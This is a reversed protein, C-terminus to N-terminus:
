VMPYLFWSVICWSRRFGLHCESMRLSMLTMKLRSLKLVALRGVLKLLEFCNRYAKFDSPLGQLDRHWPKTGAAVWAAVVNLVTDAKQRLIKQQLTLPYPMHRAVKLEPRVVCVYAEDWGELQEAFGETWPIKSPSWCHGLPYGRSDDEALNNDGLDYDDIDDSFLNAADWPFPKRFDEKPEERALPEPVDHSDEPKPDHIMPDLDQFGPALTVASVEQELLEMADAGVEELWEDSEDYGGLFSCVSTLARAWHHRAERPTAPEEYELVATIEAM